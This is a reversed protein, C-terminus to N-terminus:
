HPHSSHPQLMGERVALLPKPLFGGLLLAAALTWLVIRERALLGTNPPLRPAYRAASGLFIRKFSRVLTIGNIATISLLLAALGIHQHSLGQMLLDESIFTATGPFGVISLGLILYGAAMESFLSSLGGLRRMDATGARAEIGRICLLLGPFALAMAVALFVAGSEGQFTASALGVLVEGGLSIGLFGLMRRAHHQGLALLAGYVASLAGLTFLWPRMMSWAGPFLDQGLLLLGSAGLPSLIILAVLTARGREVFTPMWFHMPVIGLRLMAGGFFLAGAWTPMAQQRGLEQLTALAYPASIGQSSAWGVMGLIGLLLPVTGGIMLILSAKRLAADQSRYGDLGAPLISLLVSLTLLVLNQSLLIGAVGLGSVLMWAAGLGRLDERPYGWRVGFIVGGLLLLVIGVWGSTGGRFYPFARNSEMRLLFGLGTLAIALSSVLLLSHWVPRQQGQSKIPLNQSSLGGMGYQELWDLKNSLLLSPRAIWRELSAEVEFREIALRYLFRRTTPRLQEWLSHPEGAGMTQLAARRGLADQLVSPTRLFQYYRLLTHAVLHVLALRPWGLGCEVFMLGVQAATAYALSSKADASVQGSLSAMLATIVGVFILVVRITPIQQFLPDMRLLLFVGAHLSLAGYFVASSATPGEMARPLWGGVPFQASKGMAGLVLGLGVLSAVWPETLVPHEQFLDRFVTTHRQHHLMLAALLLGVDCIRYTILLRIAARVPGTREWFFAVLLVSTLGVVEWGAFLLDLSGSLLLLQLGSGFCLMLLFFRTFSPERHLYNKSFKSTALLLVSALLSCTLSLGDGLLILPFGLGEARFWAGLEPQLSRGGQGVFSAVAVLTSALSLALTGTSIAVVASERPTSSKLRWIGLLIAGLLPWAPVMWLAQEFM